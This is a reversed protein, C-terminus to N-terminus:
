EATAEKRVPATFLQELQEVRNNLAKMMDLPAYQPENPNQQQVLVYEKFEPANLQPNFRKSYIRGQAENVFYYPNGDPIIQAAVAEEKCTVYRANVQGPDMQPQMAQMQMPQPPQYIPRYTQPYTTQMQQGYMPYGQAGIM